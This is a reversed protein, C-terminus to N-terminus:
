KLNNKKKALNRRYMKIDNLYQDLADIQMIDEKKKLISYEIEFEEIARDIKAIDMIISKSKIRRSKVENELFLKHNDKIKEILQNREKDSKMASLLDLIEPLKNSIDM